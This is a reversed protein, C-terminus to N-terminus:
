ECDSKQHRSIVKAKLGYRGREVDRFIDTCKFPLEVCPRISASVGRQMRDYEAGDVVM